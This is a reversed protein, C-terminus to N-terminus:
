EVGNLKNVLLQCYIEMQDKNLFDGKVKLLVDHDFDDSEVGIAEGRIDYFIRWPGNDMDELVSPNYGEEMPNYLGDKHVTKTERKMYEELQERSTPFEGTDQHFMVIANGYKAAKFVDKFSSRAKGGVCEIKFM